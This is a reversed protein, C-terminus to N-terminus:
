FRLNPHMTRNKRDNKIGNIIATVNTGEGYVAYITDIAVQATRGANILLSVLDWIIKRCCYMHRVAGREQTTFDKAPKHGAIGDM